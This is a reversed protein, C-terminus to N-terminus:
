FNYGTTIAFNSNKAVSDGLYGRQQKKEIVNVLGLSYNLGVYFHHIHFGGGFRFGADFLKLSLTENNKVKGESYFTDLTRDVIEVHGGYSTEKYIKTKGGVGFALYPAVEISIRSKESIPFRYQVALPIEIYYASIKRASIERYISGSVREEYRSSDRGGRTSLMIGPQVYLNKYLRLDVVLGAHFGVTPRYSWENDGSISITHYNMGVRIGPSVARETFPRRQASAEVAVAATFVAALLLFKKM